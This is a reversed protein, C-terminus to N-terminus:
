PRGEYEFIKVLNNPSRYVLKFGPLEEFFFLKVFNSDVLGSELGYVSLDPNVNILQDQYYFSAFLYSANEEAITGPM